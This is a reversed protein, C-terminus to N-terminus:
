PYPGGRRLDDMEKGELYLALTAIGQRPLAIRGKGERLRSSAEKKRKERASPDGAASPSCSRAKVHSPSTGASM